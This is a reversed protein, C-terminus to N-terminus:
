AGSIKPAMQAGTPTHSCAEIEGPAAMQVCNRGADKARYLAADAARLLATAELPEAGECCAGGLSLTARVQGDATEVPSQAVAERLEEARQLTTAADCGSLVILFEEGGYRGVVDYQRL